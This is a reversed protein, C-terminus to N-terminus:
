VGDAPIAGVMRQVNTLAAKTQSGFIKDVSIDQYYCYRLSMQLAWVGGNANGYGLLCDKNGNYTPYRAGGIGSSQTYTNCTPLAANAPTAVAVAGVGGSMTM